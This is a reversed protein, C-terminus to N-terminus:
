ATATTSSPSEVNPSTGEALAKAAAEAAARLKAAQDKPLQALFAETCVRKVEALNALSVNARITALGEAGAYEIHNLQLGAWLLATLLRVSPRDFVVGLDRLINIGTEEEFLCFANLDFAVRFSTSFEAGDADEVRLTFPVSPTIRRRLTSQESM